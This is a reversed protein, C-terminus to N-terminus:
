TMSDLDRRVPVSYGSREMWVKRYSGKRFGPVWHQHISFRQLEDFVPASPNHNLGDYNFLTTVTFLGSSVRNQYKLDSTYEQYQFFKLSTIGMYWILCLELVGMLFCMFHFTRCRSSSFSSTIIALSLNQWVFCALLGCMFGETKLRDGLCIHIYFHRILILRASKCCVFSSEFSLLLSRYM